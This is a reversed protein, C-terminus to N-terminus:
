MMSATASPPLGSFKSGITALCTPAFTRCINYERTASMMLIAKEAEAARTSCTLSCPKTTNFSTMSTLEQTVGMMRFRVLLFEGCRGIRVELTRQQKLLM